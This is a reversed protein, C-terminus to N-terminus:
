QLAAEGLQLAQRHRGALAFIKESREFGSDTVSEMFSSFPMCAPFDILIEKYLGRDPLDEPAFPAGLEVLDGIDPYEPEITEPIPTQQNRELATQFSPAEPIIDLEEPLDPTGPTFITQMNTELTTEKAHPTNTTGSTSTSTSGKTM